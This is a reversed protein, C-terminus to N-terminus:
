PNGATSLDARRARAEWEPRLISMIIADVREAGWRLADRRCGERVFGVREYVAIARPNFAYVELELRHVPHNAFVHDVVMRTAETGFGKDRAHQSLAIRFSCCENDPDWDNIVAEGCWQGTQVDVVAFDLRDAHAHRTATWQEIRERTFQEHTGTLRIGEQDNVLGFMADADTAHMPRLRVREGTLTPKERFIDTPATM